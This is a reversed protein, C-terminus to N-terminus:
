IKMGKLSREYMEEHKPSGMKITKHPKPLTFKNLKRDSVATLDIYLKKKQM